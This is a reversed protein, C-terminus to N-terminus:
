WVMFSIDFYFFAAFLTPTNGSRFFAKDMMAVYDRNEECFTKIFILARCAFICDRRHHVKQCANGSGRQQARSVQPSSASFKRMLAAFGAQM